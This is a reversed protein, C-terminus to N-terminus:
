ISNRRELAKEKWQRARGLRNVETVKTDLAGAAKPFGLFKIM